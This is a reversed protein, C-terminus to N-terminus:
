VRLQLPVVSDKKWYRSNVGPFDTTFHLGRSEHRRLASTVILKAVTVVNRLDLVPPTIRTRKYFDEIEKQLLNIRRYARQLRLTSRVIGVYDWMTTQIEHLNHSLLIWEETEVTGSDDWPPIRREDIFPISSLRNRADHVARYSFVLAELLSNSALRNAGHVGTCSNEGCAYLTDISSHSNSNVWIGGCLYHAAPVVPILDKTIDLGLEKCRSYINPFRQKTKSGSIHTIDLYVCPKGSKKMEKDIAQAVADRPALSKMPHYSDMFKEGDHNKLVAGFGRVAESILFSDSNKHYLMTPHFQIFEMNRIEAGARFSMAIGDGTAIEPNTTHLYTKGVGGTALCTVKAQLSFIRNKETDLIYAGYCRNKQPPNKVHHNTILEIAYHNQFLTVNPLRNVLNLLTAEVEQGTLDKAHVIRNATHGGERGLDLSAYAKSDTSRSFQVGWSLLEKIREPGENVLIEVADTNSLGKGTELTDDIHRSFDDDPDLVCAIGGQARNSNSDTNSKKTIIVVNGYQSAHIAFNLGAIGSGIVLFDTKEINM